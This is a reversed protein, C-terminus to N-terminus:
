TTLTSSTHPVIGDAALSNELDMREAQQNMLTCWDITPSLAQTDLHTALGPVPVWLKVKRGFLIQAWGYIWAKAIIKALWPQQFAFRLTKVPDFVSYKTMSLWLSCDFNRRCYTRFNAETGVLTQKRTLFTLCTSAATRWHRAAHVRIWKPHHHIDLTYCDLHDYPSIFDVDSYARLFEAMGSFATPLYFYDDEAFYVLDSDNQNLLIDIQKEFTFLNGVGPLPILVLDEAAFYKQFLEAYGRPCGDLLVWLKVRLGNLSEKFSRLCIESLRLKDDSSPLGLGPKAVQPYIRYAIAIDYLSM